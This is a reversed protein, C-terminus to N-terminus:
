WIFPLYHNETIETIIFFNLILGTYIKKFEIVLYLVFNCSDNRAEKLVRMHEINIMADISGAFTLSFL